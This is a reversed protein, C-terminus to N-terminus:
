TPLLTTYIRLYGSTHTRMSTFNSKHYQWVLRFHQQIWTCRGRCHYFVVIGYRLSITFLNYLPRYLVDACLRLIRPPIDDIGSAKNPNLLSLVEYVEM